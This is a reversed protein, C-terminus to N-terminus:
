DPGLRRDLPAAHVLQAIKLALRRLVRQRFDTVVAALAPLRELKGEADLYEIVLNRGEVYGLDRLGQLFAERPLGSAGPHAGLWGLRAIKAAQQAEGALPAILLGVATVIFSRRNM